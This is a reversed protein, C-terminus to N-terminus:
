SLLETYILRRQWRWRPSYPSWFVANYSYTLYGAAMCPPRNTPTLNNSKFCHEMADPASVVLVPCTGFKLFLVPGYKASLTQLAEHLPKKLLHLHGRIPLAFLGQHYIRRQGCYGMATFLSDQIRDPYCM